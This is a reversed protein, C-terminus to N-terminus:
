YIKNVVCTTLQMYVYHMNYIKVEQNKIKCGCMCQVQPSRGGQGGSTVAKCVGM